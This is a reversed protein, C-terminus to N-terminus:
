KKVHDPLKNLVGTVKVFSEVPINWYALFDDGADKKSMVCQISRIKKSRAIDYFM